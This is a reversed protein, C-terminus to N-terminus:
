AYRETLMGYLWERDVETAGRAIELRKATQDITLRNGRDTERLKLTRLADRSFTARPRRPTQDGWPMGGHDDEDALNGPPVGRDYDIASSRLTLTEPVSPRLLRFAARTVVVGGITWCTLWFVLFADVFGGLLVRIVSIEGVLWGGLWAIIYAAMLFRRDGGGPYPIELSPHRGTRTLVLKSNEPLPTM